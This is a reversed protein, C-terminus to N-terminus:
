WHRVATQNLRVYRGFADSLEQMAAADMEIRMGIRGKGDRGGVILKHYQSRGSRELAGFQRNRAHWTLMDAAQASVNTKDVSEFNGVLSVLHARNTYEPAGILSQHFGEILRTVTGNREVRFVVREVADG